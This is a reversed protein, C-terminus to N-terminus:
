KTKVLCLLWTLLLGLQGGWILSVGNAYDTVKWCLIQVIILVLTHLIVFINKQLNSSWPVLNTISYLAILLYNLAIEVTVGDYFFYHMVIEGTTSNDWVFPDYDYSGESYSYDYDYSGESYSYDYDSFESM